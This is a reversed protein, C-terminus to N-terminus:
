IHWILTDQNSLQLFEFVPLSLKTESLTQVANSIHLSALNELAHPSFVPALDLVLFYNVGPTKSSVVIFLVHIVVGRDLWYLDTVFKLVHSHCQLGSKEHLAFSLLCSGRVCTSRVEGVIVAASKQWSVVIVRPDVLFHQRIYLEM